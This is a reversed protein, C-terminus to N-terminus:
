NDPSENGTKDVQVPNKNKRLNHLALVLAIPWFHLIMPIGCDPCPLLGLGCLGAVGLWPKILKWRSTRYISKKL